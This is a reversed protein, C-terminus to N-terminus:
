NEDIEEFQIYDGEDSGFVKQHNSENYASSQQRQSQQSQQSQSRQQHDGAGYSAGGFSSKRRSGFFLRFIGSLLSAGLVFVVLLILGVFFLIGTIFAM